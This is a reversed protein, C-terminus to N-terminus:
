RFNGGYILWSDIQTCRRHRFLYLSEIHYRFALWQAQNATHLPRSRGNLQWRIAMRKWKPFACNERKWKAGIAGRCSHLQLFHTASCKLRRWKLLTNNSRGSFYQNIDICQIDNPAKKNEGSYRNRYWNWPCSLQMGNNKHCKMCKVFSDQSRVRRNLEEQRGIRVICYIAPKCSRRVACGDVENHLWALWQESLTQQHHRWM